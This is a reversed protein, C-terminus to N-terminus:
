GPLMLSYIMLSDISINNYYKIRYYPTANKAVCVCIVDLSLLGGKRVGGGKWAKQRTYGAKFVHM